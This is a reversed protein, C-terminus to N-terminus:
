EEVLKVKRAKSRGTKEDQGLEYEVLDEKKVSDCNMLESFHFFLDTGDENAASLFGYGKSENFFKVRAQM